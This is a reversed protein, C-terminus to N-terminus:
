TRNRLLLLKLQPDREHHWNAMEERERQLAIYKSAHNAKHQHCGDVRRATRCLIIPGECVRTM